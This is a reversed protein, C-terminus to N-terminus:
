APLYLQGFVILRAPHPKLGSGATLGPYVPSKLHSIRNHNHKLGSGATLGPSVIIPMQKGLEEILKLGSGATLGPSVENGVLFLRVASTEIRERRNPRSICM